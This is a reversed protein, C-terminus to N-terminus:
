RVELLRKWELGTAAIVAEAQSPTLIGARTPSPAFAVASALGLFAAIRNSEAAPETVLRGHNVILVGPDNSLDLALRATALWTDLCDEFALSVVPGRALSHGWTRALMSSVVQTPDRVMYLVKLSPMLSRVRLLWGSYRGDPIAIRELPEKEVILRTAAPAGDGSSSSVLEGLLGELRRRRSALATFREVETLFAAAAHFIRSEERIVVGPQQGLWNLLATTGSRPCGTILAFSPAQPRPRSWLSNM